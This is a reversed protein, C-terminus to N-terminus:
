RSMPNHARARRSRMASAGGLVVALLVPMAGAVLYAAPMYWAFLAAGVLPGAIQGASGAANQLGLAAGTHAQGKTSALTSLSPTWLSAGLGILAVSGFVVTRQQAWALNAIGIGMVILGSVLLGIKGVRRAVRGVVAIQMTIMVGGCTAFVAGVERLGYRLTLRAHLAFTTEFIALGAQAIVAIALIAALKNALDHWSVSEAGTADPTGSSRRAEPLRHLPVFALLALLAAAFFPVSFSDFRIHVGHTWAAVDVEGLLGGLSPGLFGGLGIGSLYWAMGRPREAETTADAVYAAAAPLIAAAFAGGLSRALYLAPLSAALGCLALTLAVGGLGIGIVRKRGVRDSFRGWLPAFVLQSVAYAASVAGVHLAVQEQSGSSVFLREIHSPLLPFVVGFGIMVLAVCAAITALGAKTM